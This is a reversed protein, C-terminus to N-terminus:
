FYKQIPKVFGKLDSGLFKSNYANKSDSADVFILLLFTQPSNELSTGRIKTLWFKLVKVSALNFRCGLYVPIGFNADIFSSTLLVFYSATNIIMM